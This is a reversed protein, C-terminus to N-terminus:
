PSSLMKFHHSAHILQLRLATPKDMSGFMPSPHLPGAHNTFEIIAQELNLVAQCEDMDRPPVTEPITPSGPAMTGSQLIGRLISKGMTLRMAGVILRPFWPM